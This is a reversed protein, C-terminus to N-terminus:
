NAAAKSSAPSSETGPAKEVNVGQRILASVAAQLQPDQEAKLQNRVLLAEQESTLEKQIDVDIGKGTFIEGNLTLYNAVPLIIASGDSLPKVEDKTGLGATKEGVLLGRKYDKIDAAFIEAAGFTNRNVIVSIPLNVTNPGSTYQVTVKGTKDKYSVTNGAPLLTDLMEAMGRISGGSNSRLDIVIGSAGEKIRAALLNNFQEANSDTFAAIKLYAVNGNIMSSTLTQEAYEARTVTISLLSAKAEAKQETNEQRLIGLKITSGAVGDLKNLADGYTLRIVEKDDVSVVTDGKKIGSKEAPSGPTVEIVEMNGDKDQVTKIGVGVSKESSSNLYAKYKEASLYKAQANGLGAAYGACIGDNLEKENVSGIYVQRTKQDIESLKTYMAQRENIDAVKSNFSKMAYVYTLSVTISATVAVLAVAAGWSLKRSM